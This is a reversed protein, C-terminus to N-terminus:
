IIYYQHASATAAYCKDYYKKAEHNNVLNKPTMGNFLEPRKALRKALAVAGRKNVLRHTVAWGSEIHTIRWGNDFRDEHVAFPGYVEADVTFTKVRTSPPTVAKIKINMNREMESM